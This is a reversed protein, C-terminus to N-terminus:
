TKWICIYSRAWILDIKKNKLNNHKYKKDVHLLRFQSSGGKSHMYFIQM